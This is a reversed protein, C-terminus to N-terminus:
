DEGNSDKLYQIATNLVEINDGAFGLMKNCEHCLLGRVKGTTHCHDVCLPTKPLRCIACSNGQAEAMAEYEDLTIGFNFKLANNKKKRSWEPDNKRRARSWEL